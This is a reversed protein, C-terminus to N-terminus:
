PAIPWPTSTSVTRRVCSLKRSPLRRECTALPACYPAMSEARYSISFMRPETSLSWRLLAIVFKKEAQCSSPVWGLAAESFDSTTSLADDSTVSM